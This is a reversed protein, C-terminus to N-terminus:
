TGKTNDFIRKSYPMMNALYLPCDDDNYTNMTIVYCDNIKEAIITLVDNENLRLSPRYTSSEQLVVKVKSFVKDFDSHGNRNDKTISCSLALQNM